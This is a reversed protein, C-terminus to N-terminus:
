KLHFEQFAKLGEKGIQEIAMLTYAFSLSSHGPWIVLIKDKIIQDAKGAKLYLWDEKDLSYYALKIMERKDAPLFAFPHRQLYSNRFATFDEKGINELTAVVYAFSLGSHGPWNKLIKKEMIKDVSNGFKLRKWDISNLSYYGSEVMDRESEELFKFNVAQAKM